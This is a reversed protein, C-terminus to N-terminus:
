SELFWNSSILPKYSELSYELGSLHIIQKTIFPIKEISENIMKENLNKKGRNRHFNDYIEAIKEQLKGWLIM